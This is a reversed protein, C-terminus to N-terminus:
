LETVRGCGVACCIINSVGQPFFFSDPSKPSCSHTEAVFAWVSLRWREVGDERFCGPVSVGSAGAERESGTSDGAVLGRVWGAGMVHAKRWKRFGVLGMCREKKRGPVSREGPSVRGQWKCRPERMEEVSVKGHSDETVNDGDRSVELVNDQPSVHGLTELVSSIWLIDLSM